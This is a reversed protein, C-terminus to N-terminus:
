RQPDSCSIKCEVLEGVSDLAIRIKGENRLKFLCEVGEEPNMGAIPPYQKSVTEYCRTLYSRLIGDAAQEMSKGEKFKM